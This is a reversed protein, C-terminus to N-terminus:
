AAPRGTATCASALLRPGIAYGDKLAQKLGHVAPTQAGLDRITTVGARLASQVYNAGWLAAASESLRMLQPEHFIHIHSDILGPLITQRGLDLSIAGSPLAFGTASGIRGIHGDAIEVVGNEIVERAKGTVVKAARLFIHAMIFTRYIWNTSKIYSLHLTATSLRIRGDQPLLNM